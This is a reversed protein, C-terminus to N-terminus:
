GQGGFPHWILAWAIHGLVRRNFAGRYLSLEAAGIGPYGHILSVIIQGNLNVSLIRYVGIVLDLVNTRDGVICGMIRVQSMDQLIDDTFDHIRSIQKQFNIGHPFCSTHDVGSGVLDVHRNLLGRGISRAQQRLTDAHRGTLDIHMLQHMGDSLMAQLGVRSQASLHLRQIIQGFFCQIAITFAVLM